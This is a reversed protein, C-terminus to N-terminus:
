REATPRLSNQIKTLHHEPSQLTRWTSCTVPACDTWANQREFPHAKVGLLAEARCCTSVLIHTPDHVTKRRSPPTHPTAQWLYQPLTGTPPQPTLAYVQLPITTSPNECIIAAGRLADSRQNQRDTAAPAAFGGEGGPIWWRDGRHLDRPGVWQSASRAPAGGGPHRQTQTHSPPPPPCGMFVSKTQPSTWQASGTAQAGRFLCGGSSSVRLALSTISRSVVMPPAGQGGGGAQVCIEYLLFFHFKCFSINILCNKTCM